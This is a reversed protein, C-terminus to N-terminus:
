GRVGLPKNDARIIPEPRRLFKLLDMLSIGQKPLPFSGRLLSVLSQPDTQKNDSGADNM